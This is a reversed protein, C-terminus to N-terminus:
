TVLRTQSCAGRHAINQSHPSVTSETQPRWPSRRTPDGAVGGRGRAFRRIEVSNWRLEPHSEAAFTVGDREGPEIVGRAQDLSCGPDEVAASRGCGSIGQVSRPRRLEVHRGMFERAVHEASHEPPLAYSACPNSVDAFGYIGARRTDIGCPGPALTTGLLALALVESRRSWDSMRGTGPLRPPCIASRSLLSLGGVQLAGPRVARM